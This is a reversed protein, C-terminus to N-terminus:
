KGGHQLMTSIEHTKAVTIPKQCSDVSARLLTNPRKNAVMSCPALRM